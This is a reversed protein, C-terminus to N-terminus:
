VYSNVESNSIHNIYKVSTQSVVIAAINEEDLTKQLKGLGLIRETSSMLDWFLTTSLPVIPQSQIKNYSLKTNIM